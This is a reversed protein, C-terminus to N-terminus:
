TALRGVAAAAAALAHDFTALPLRMTLALNLYSADYATLNTDLALLLVAIYDVDMLSVGADFAGDLASIIARRLPPDAVIKKRAVNALELKLFSPAYLPQSKLLVAAKNAHPEGFCWAAIVSADVVIGSM